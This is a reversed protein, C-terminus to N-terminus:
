HERKGGKKQGSDSSGKKKGNTRGIHKAPAKLNAGKNALWDSCQIALETDNSKLHSRVWQKLSPGGEPFAKKYRTKLSQAQSKKVTKVKM